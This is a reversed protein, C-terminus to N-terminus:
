YTRHIDISLNPIRISLAMFTISFAFIAYIFSIVHDLRVRGSVPAIAELFPFESKVRSNLIVL